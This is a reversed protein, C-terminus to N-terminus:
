PDVLNHSQRQLHSQWGSALQVLTPTDLILSSLPDDERLSFLVEDGNKTHIPTM